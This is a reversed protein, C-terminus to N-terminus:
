AAMMERPVTLGVANGTLGLWMVLYTEPPVVSGGAVALMAEPTSCPHVMLTPTLGGIVGVGALAARYEPAVLLEYIADLSADAWAPQPGVDVYLAPVQYTRHLLIRYTARVHRARSDRSRDLARVEREVVLMVEEPGDLGYEIRAHRWERVSARRARALLAECAVRFQPASIYPFDAVGAM